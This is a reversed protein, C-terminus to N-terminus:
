IEHGELFISGSLKNFFQKYIEPDDILEARRLGNKTLIKRDFTTRVDVQKSNQIPTVVVDVVITQEKDWDPNHYSGLLAPMVTLAVQGTIQGAEEADRQKSGVLVGVDPASESITFGLDQLVQTTATLVAAQNATDYRRTELAAGVKMAISNPSQCASLSMLALAVPAIKQRFRM